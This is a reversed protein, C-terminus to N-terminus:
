QIGGHILATTHELMNIIMDGDQDKLGCSVLNDHGADLLDGVVEPCM